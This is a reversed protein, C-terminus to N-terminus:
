CDVQLNMNEPNDLVRVFLSDATYQLVPGHKRTKSNFFVGFQLSRTGEERM